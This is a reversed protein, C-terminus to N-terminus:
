PRLLVSSLRYIPAVPKKWIGYVSEIKCSRVLSVLCGDMIAFVDKIDGKIKVWLEYARWTDSVKPKLKEIYQEMLGIYKKIWMYITKHSVEVGLLGLSKQTNGLSEGSFYLQMATTIAQPNHKM